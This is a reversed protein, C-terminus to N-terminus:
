EADSEFFAFEKMTPNDLDIQLKLRRLLTLGIINAPNHGPPTEEVAYNRGFIKIILGTEGDKVVGHSKLFDLTAEGLYLGMPAGTDCVFSATTFKGNFLKISVRLLVRFHYQREHYFLERPTPADQVHLDEPHAMNVYNAPFDHDSLMLEGKVKADETLLTFSKSFM